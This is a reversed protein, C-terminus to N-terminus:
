NREPKLRGAELQTSIYGSLKVCVGNAALVGPVGGIDCHKLAEPNAKKVQRPLEAAAACTTLMLTVLGLLSMIQPFAM